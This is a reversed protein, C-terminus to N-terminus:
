NVRVISKLFSNSSLQTVNYSNAMSSARGYVHIAPYSNKGDEKRERASTMHALKITYSKLSLKFWLLSNTNEQSLQPAPM